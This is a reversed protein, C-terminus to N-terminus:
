QDLRWIILFDRLHSPLGTFQIWVKPLVFKVESDVMREEIKLKANQFKSHAVGWEVMRQLEARSPFVTKLSNMGIEKVNWKWAGPILRELELIVNQASMNGDFMSIMASRAENWQHLSLEHHIHFFVLGEVAFGCPVAPLRVARFIPCRPRVHDHSACIDCYMNAHCVKIAHGKTKCRFCYPIKGSSGRVEGQKSLEPVDVASAPKAEKESKDVDMAVKGKDTGESVVDKRSEVSPDRMAEFAQQLLIVAQEPINFGKGGLNLAGTAGSTSVTTNGV